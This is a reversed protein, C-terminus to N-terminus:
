NTTADSAGTPALSEYESSDCVTLSSCQRDSSETPAVSMYEGSDCETFALCEGDDLFEDDDCQAISGFVFLNVQESVEAGPSYLVPIQKGTVM